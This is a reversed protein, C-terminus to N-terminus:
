FIRLIAFPNHNHFSWTRQPGTDINGHTCQVLIFFINKLSSIFARNAINIKREWNAIWIKNLHGLKAISMFNENDISNTELNKKQFQSDKNVKENLPWSNTMMRSTGSLDLSAVSSMFANWWLCHPTTLQLFIWLSLAFM